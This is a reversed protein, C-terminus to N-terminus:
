PNVKDVSGGPFKTEERGAPLNSISEQRLTQLKLLGITRGLRGKDRKAM